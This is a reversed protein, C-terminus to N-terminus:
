VKRKIINEKIVNRHTYIIEKGGVELVTPKDLLVREAAYGFVNNTEPDLLLINTTSDERTLWRREKAFARSAVQKPTTGVYTGKVNGEVDVHHYIKRTEFASTETEEHSSEESTSEDSVDDGLDEASLNDSITSMQTVMQSTKNTALKNDIHPTRDQKKSIGNQLARKPATGRYKGIARSNSADIVRFCRKPKEESSSATNSLSDELPARKRKPAEESSDGMDSSSDELPMRKRKPAEESSSTTDSSSNSRKSM